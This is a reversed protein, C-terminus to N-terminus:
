YALVQEKITVGEICLMRQQLLKQDLFLVDYM